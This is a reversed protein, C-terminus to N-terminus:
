ELGARNLVAMLRPQYAQGCPPLYWFSVEMDRRQGAPDEMRMLTPPTIAQRQLALRLGCRACLSREDPDRCDFVVECSLGTVQEARWGLLDEAVPTFLRIKGETDMIIVGQRDM